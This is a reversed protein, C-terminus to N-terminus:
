PEYNRALEGLRKAADDEYGEVRKAVTHFSHAFGWALDSAYREMRTDRLVDFMTQIMMEVAAPVQEPDPMEAAEPADVISMKAMEDYEIFVEAYAHSRAENGRSAAVFGALDAFNSLTKTM